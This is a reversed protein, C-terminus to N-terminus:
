QDVCPWRLQKTVLADRQSRVDVHLMEHFLTVDLQGTELGSRILYIRYNTTAGGAIATSDAHGSIESIRDVVVMPITAKFPKLLEDVRQTVAAISSRSNDDSVFPVVHVEHGYVAYAPAKKLTKAAPEWGATVDAIARALIDENIGQVPGSGAFKQLALAQQQYATDRVAGGRCRWSQRLEVQRRMRRGAPLASQSRDLAKGFARLFM